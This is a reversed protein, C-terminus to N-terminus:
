RDAEYIAGTLFDPWDREFFPEDNRDRRRVPRAACAFRGDNLRIMIQEARDEPRESVFRVDDLPGTRVEPTRDGNPTCIARAGRSGGGRELYFALAALVAESLLATQRWQLARLAGAAGAFAVGQRRISENLARAGKLASRVDEPKCLIGAHDSMRTQVERRIAGVDLASDPRLVGLIREVADEILAVESRAAPGLGRRAAIREASRTGFVQGANLAAGGPRTVGHTGAAEGVAYCGDLSTEGWTNVALGGNM